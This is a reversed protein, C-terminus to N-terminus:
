NHKKSTLFYKFFEYVSWSFATAPMQYICRAQLGQYFGRWGRIKYVMKAAQMLGNISTQNFTSSSNDRPAGLVRSSTSLVTVCTKITTSTIMNYKKFNHSLLYLNSTQRRKIFTINNTGTKTNNQETINPNSIKNKDQYSKNSSEYISPHSSLNSSHPSCCGSPSASFHHSKNTSNDGVSLILEQTNLLTKCVDLPTTIAAAIGGAIGGAMLHSLPDYYFVPDTTKNKSVGKNYRKTNGKSRLRYFKKRCYEYTVFHTTQFPINMTLQTSYSRYFAGYGEKKFIASACNIAGTYPSNLAQLRQKIVEVPNMIADHLLTAIAGAAGHALIQHTRSCTNIGQNKTDLAKSDQTILFKKIAEYSSFYLAHAPGAGIVVANLGRIPRLIGENKIIQSLNQLLNKGEYLKYSLLSQMRTKVSDIPYMCSHEMIGAAAGALMHTYVTTNQPLTEYDDYDM